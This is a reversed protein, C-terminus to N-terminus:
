LQPKLEIKGENLTPIPPNMEFSNPTLVSLDIALKWDYFKQTSQHIELNELSSKMENQHNELARISDGYEMLKKQEVIQSSYAVKSIFDTRFIYFQQDLHGTLLRDKCNLKGDSAVRLWSNTKEM